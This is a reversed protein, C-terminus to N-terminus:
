FQLCTVKIGLYNLLDTDTPDAYAKATKEALDKITLDSGHTILWFVLKRHRNQVAHM